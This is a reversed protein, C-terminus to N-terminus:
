SWRLLFALHDNANRFQFVGESVYSWDQANFHEHCWVMCPSWGQYLHKSVREIVPAEVSAIHWKTMENVM